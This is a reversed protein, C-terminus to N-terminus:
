SVLDLLAQGEYEHPEKNAILVILISGSIIFLSAILDYKWIIKENFLWASLSLNALIVLSSNASIFALDAYPIALIHLILGTTMMLIGM